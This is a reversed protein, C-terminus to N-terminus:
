LFIEFIIYHGFYFWVWLLPKEYNTMTAMQQSRGGLSRRRRKNAWRRANATSLPASRASATASLTTLKRWSTCTSRRLTRIPTTCKSRYLNICFLILICILIIYLIIHVAFSLFLYLHTSASLLFHRYLAPPVPSSPNQELTPCLLNSKNLTYCNFHSYLNM